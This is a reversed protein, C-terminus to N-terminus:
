LINERNLIIFECCYIRFIRLNEYKNKKEERADRANCKARFHKRSSYESRRRNLLHPVLRFTFQFLGYCRARIRRNNILRQNAWGGVHWVNQLGTIYSVTKWKSISTSFKWAIIKSQTYPVFLSKKTKKHRYNTRMTHLNGPLIIKNWDCPIRFIILLM